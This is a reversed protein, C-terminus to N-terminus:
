HISHCKLIPSSMNILLCLWSPCTHGCWGQCLTEKPPMKCLSATYQLSLSFLFCFNFEGLYGQFPQIDHFVDFTFFVFLFFATPCFTQPSQPNIQISCSSQVLYFLIFPTKNKEWMLVFLHKCARTWPSPLSLLLPRQAWHVSRSVFQVM